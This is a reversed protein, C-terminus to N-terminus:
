VEDQKQRIQNEPVYTAPRRKNAWWPRRVLIDSLESTNTPAIPSLYPTGFSTMSAMHILLLILGIMIGFYGLFGALFLMFFRAIRLSMGVTYSPFVFSCIGTFAVVVVMPTSVLGASVAADGIVLAGVISIAPGIARPMRVGAERLIEFTIEMMLAELLAPVPIGERAAAITLLLPTPIMEQHYTITAVYISPLLLTIIFCFQRLLRILSAPIYRMYYDEPSNWFQPFTAPVVMAWPSGDVMIAVRGELLHAVVRDPRETYEVQPFISYRHDEMLEELYGPDLVGGIDIGQLRYRVEEILSDSAIGKVFCMVVNTQTLRGIVSLEMKLNSSKLRRRILATNFRLTETLGEKPGKILVEEEPSETKRGEWGRVGVVLARDYGNIILIADGSAILRIVEEIHTCEQVDTATMLRDKVNEYMDNAWTEVTNHMLDYELMLPRMICSEVEPKSVLGDFYVLLAEIDRDKGFKFKRIVADSCGDLLERLHLENTQLNATLDQAAIWENPIVVTENPQNNKAGKDTLYKM